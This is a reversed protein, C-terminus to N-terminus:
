DEYSEFAKLTENLIGQVLSKGADSKWNVNRLDM